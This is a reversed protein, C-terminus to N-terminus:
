TNAEPQTLRLIADACADSAGRNTSIFDGAAESIRERLPEDNWLSLIRDALQTSNEVQFGVGAEVASRGIQRFNEMHPGFLVPKGHALPQLVNQGGKRVLSGGIFAVNCLSYLSALEGMTDVLIVPSGEGLTGKAASSLQSRRVCTFGKSLILQELNGVRELHRPAVLLRAEPAYARVRWYADLVQEDEGEHTSGALIVLDEPRLGFDARSHRAVAPADLEDFKVNGGLFARERSAGLKVMRELDTASQMYLAHVNSLAWKFLPRFLLAVRFAGDSIRGNVIIIKTGRANALSLLNPWIEGEILVLCAPDLADLVSEVPLPFDFPFYSIGALLGSLRSEAVERGTATTVSAVLPLSTSGYVRKIIPASAVVEGVSVAHFWLSKQGRPRGTSLRAPTMGLRQLLGPRIRGVVIGLWLFALAVLPFLLALIVNYAAYCLAPRAGRGRSALAPWISRLGAKGVKFWHELSRAALPLLAAHCGGEEILGKCRRIVCRLLSLSETAM